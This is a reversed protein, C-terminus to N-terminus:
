TNLRLALCKQETCAFCNGGIPCSESLVAITPPAERAAELGFSEIGFSLAADPYKTALLGLSFLTYQTDLIFTPASPLLHLLPNAFARRLIGIGRKKSSHTFIGGVAIINQVMRVDRGLPMGANIGLVINGESIKGAHRRAALAIASTAMATDFAAALSSGEPVISEPASEMLLAHDCLCKELKEWTTPSLDTTLAHGLVAEFEEPDGYLLVNRPGLTEIIGYASVRMGLNGEVTRFSAQKENSVVLGREELSLAEFEPIVSHIDTTAGGIDVVMLAGVGKNSHTGRALLETAMLVAGPTPAVKGDFTKEALKALGPARTIQRIFQEHIAERAPKVRLDHITPLINPVRRIAIGSARLVEAAVSQSQINGAVIAVPEWCKPGELGNAVQVAKVVVRANDVVAQTDGGDTGGTLLIIDPRIEQLVEERYDAPESCSLVELVRAGANMAVEKSAKVTVRPMYGMAVMRLGGAASCSSFILSEKNAVVGQVELTQLAKNIGIEIDAISTAAQAHGLYHLSDGQSGCTKTFVVVKTFTSGVDFVLINALGM